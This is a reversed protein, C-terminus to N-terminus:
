LMVEGHDLLEKALACVILYHVIPRIKKEEQMSGRSKLKLLLRCVPEEDEIKNFKM